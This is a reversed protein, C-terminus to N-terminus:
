SCTFINMINVRINKIIHRRVTVLADNIKSSM